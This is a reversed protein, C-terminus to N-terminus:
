ATGSGKIVVLQTDSQLILFGEQIAQIPNRIEAFTPQTMVESVCILRYSEGKKAAVDMENSTFYFSRMKSVSSKVEIFEEENKSSGFSSIDFGLYPRTQSVWDVKASLSPAGANTLRDKERQFVLSEGVRGIQMKKLALEVQQEYSLKTNSGSASFQDLQDVLNEPASALMNVVGSAHLRQHQKLYEILFNPAFYVQYETSFLQSVTQMSFWGGAGLKEFSPLYVFTSANHTPGGHDLRRADIGVLLRKDREVGLIVDVHDQLKVLGGGYTSTIEVRRELPNTRGAEGVAFLLIRYSQTHGGVKLSLRLKNGAIKDISILEAPSAKAIEAM